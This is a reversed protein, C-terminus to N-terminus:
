ESPAVLVPERRAARGQAEYRAAQVFADIVWEILQVAVQKTTIAVILKLTVSAFTLAAPLADIADNPRAEYGPWSSAPAIGKPELIELGLFRRHQATLDFGKRCEIIVGATLPNVHVRLVDPHEGLVRELAAFYAQEGRRKPIKIRIRTPTRHVVFARTQAHM